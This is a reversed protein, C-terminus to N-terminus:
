MLVLGVTSVATAALVAYGSGYAGKLTLFKGMDWGLHRLGNLSHFAFPAALIVKGAYKVADPLSSIIEIVHTSDFTTPAVLYALAYGYLLVSLGAGTVRNAISAIWTLQPQYITFHPSSPRRLRQENLIHEQVKPTLSETQISRKAFTNRLAANRAVHRPRLAAQRLAPGLGLARTSLM